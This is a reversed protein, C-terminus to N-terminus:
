RCEGRRCVILRSFVFISFYLYLCIFYLFIYIYFFVFVCICIHQRRDVSTGGIFAWGPVLQCSKWSVKSPNRELVKISKRRIQKSIKRVRACRCVSPFSVSSRTNYNCTLCLGKQCISSVRRKEITEEKFWKWRNSIWFSVGVAWFIM